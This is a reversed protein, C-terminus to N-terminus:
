QSISFVQAVASEAFHERLIIFRGANLANLFLSGAMLRQNGSDQLSAM